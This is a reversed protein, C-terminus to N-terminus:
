GKLKVGAISFKKLDAYVINWGDLDNKCEWCTNDRKGVPM